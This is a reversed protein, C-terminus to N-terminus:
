ADVWAADVGPNAAYHDVCHYVVLGAALREALPLATPLFAWLV